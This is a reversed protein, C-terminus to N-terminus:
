LKSVSNKINRIIGNLLSYRGAKSFSLYSKFFHSGTILFHVSFLFGSPAISPKLFDSICESIGIQWLNVQQPSKVTVCTLRNPPAVSLLLSFPLMHSSLDSSLMLVPVLMHVPCHGSFQFFVM